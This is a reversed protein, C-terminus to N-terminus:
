LLNVRFAGQFDKGIFYFWLYNNGIHFENINSKLAMKYMNAWSVQTGWNYLNPQSKLTSGAMKM